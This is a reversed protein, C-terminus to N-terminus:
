VYFCSVSSLAFASLVWQWSGEPINLDKGLDPLVIRSGSTAVTQLNPLKPHFCLEKRFHRVNAVM